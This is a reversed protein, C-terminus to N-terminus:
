IKFKVLPRSEKKDVPRRTFFFWDEWSEFTYGPLNLCSQSLVHLPFGSERLSVLSDAILLDFDLRSVINPFCDYYAQVRVKYSSVFSELPSMKAKPIRLEELYKKLQKQHSTNKFGVNSISRPDFQDNYVFSYRQELREKVCVTGYKSLELQLRIFTAYGDLRYSIFAACRCRECQCPTFRNFPLISDVTSFLRSEFNFHFTGQKKRSWLRSDIQSELFADALQCDDVFVTAEDLVESPKKRIVLFNGRRSQSPDEFFDVFKIIGSFGYDSLFQVFSDSWVGSMNHMKSGQVVIVEKSRDRKKVLTGQDLRSLLCYVENMKLRQPHVSTIFNGRYYIDAKSLGKRVFVKSKDCSDLDALPDGSDGAVVSPESCDYTVPTQVVTALSLLFNKQQGTMPDLLRSLGDILSVDGFRDELDMLVETSGFFIGNYYSGVLSQREGVLYALFTDQDGQDFFSSKLFDPYALFFTSTCSFVKNRLEFRVEEFKKGCIYVDIGDVYNM